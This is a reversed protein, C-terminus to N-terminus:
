NKKNNDNEISKNNHMNFIIVTFNIKLFNFYYCQEDM